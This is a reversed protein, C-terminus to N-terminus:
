FLLSVIPHNFFFVINNVVQQIQQQQYHLTQPLQEVSDILPQTFQGFIQHLSCLAGINASFHHLGNFQIQPEVELVMWYDIIYGDKYFEFFGSKINRISSSSSSSRICEISDFYIQIFFNNTLLFRFYTGIM